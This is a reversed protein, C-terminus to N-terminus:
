NLHLDEVDDRGFKGVLNKLYKEYGSNLCLTFYHSTLDHKVLCSM